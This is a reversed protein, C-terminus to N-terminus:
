LYYFTQFSWNTCYCCFLCFPFVMFLLFLAVMFLKRLGFLFDTIERLHMVVVLWWLFGKTFQVPLGFSMELSWSVQWVHFKISKFIIIKIELSWSVQWVHFKISKFFFGDCFIVHHAMFCIISYSLAGVAWTRLRSFIRDLESCHVGSLHRGFM